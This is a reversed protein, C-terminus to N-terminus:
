YLPQPPPMEKLKQWMKAQEKLKAELARYQEGLLRLEEWEKELEPNTVLINLREELAEITKSLSKGKIFIDSEDGDLEIKSSGYNTNSWPYSAGTGTYYPASNITTGAGSLTYVGAGASITTGSPITNLSSLDIKYSDGISYGTQSSETNDSALNKLSEKLEEFIKDTNNAM